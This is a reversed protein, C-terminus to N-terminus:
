RGREVVTLSDVGEFLGGSEAGTHQGHPARLRLAAGIHREWMDAFRSAVTM